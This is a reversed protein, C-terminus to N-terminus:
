EHGLETSVDMKIIV